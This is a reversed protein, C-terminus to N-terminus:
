TWGKHRAYLLLGMVVAVSCMIRWSALTRTKRDEPFMSRTPSWAPANKAPAGGEGEWRAIDFHYYKAM